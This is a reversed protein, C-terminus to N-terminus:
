VFLDSAPDRILLRASGEGTVSYGRIVAAPMRELKGLALDAAAALEIPLQSSQAQWSYVAPTLQSPWIACLLSAV